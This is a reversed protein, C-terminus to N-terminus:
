HRRWRKLDNWSRLDVFGGGSRSGFFTCTITTTANTFASTSGLLIGAGSFFFGVYGYTLAPNYVNTASVAVATTVTMSNTGGSVTWWWGNANPDGANQIYIPTNAAVVFTGAITMTRGSGTISTITLPQQPTFYCSQRNNQLSVSEWKTPQTGYEFDTDILAQPQSVRLKGVPDQAVPAGVFYQAGPTGSGAVGSNPINKSTNADVISSQGSM